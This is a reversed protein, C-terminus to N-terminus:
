MRTCAAHLPRRPDISPPARRPPARPQARPPALRRGGTRRPAADARDDVSHPRAAAPTDGRAGPPPPSGRAARRSAARLRLAGRAAGGAGRSRAARAVAAGAGGVRTGHAAWGDRAQSGDEEPRALKVAGHLFDAALVVVWAVADSYRAGGRAPAHNRAGLDIVRDAHRRWGRGRRWGRHSFSTLPAPASAVGARPPPM